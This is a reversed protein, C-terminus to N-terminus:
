MEEEVMELYEKLPWNRDDPGGPDVHDSKGFAKTVRYHTTIGKKGEKLAAENLFEPPIDYQHCLAAVLRASRHLTASEEELWKSKMAYGCHELQIGM